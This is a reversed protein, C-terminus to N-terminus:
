IFGQNMNLTVRATRLYCDHCGAQALSRTVCLWVVWEGRKVVVYKCVVADAIIEFGFDDIDEKFLMRSDQIGRDSEFIRVLHVLYKVM